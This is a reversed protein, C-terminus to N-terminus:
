PTRRRRTRELPLRLGGGQPSRRRRNPRRGWSLPLVGWRTCWFNDNSIMGNFGKILVTLPVQAEMRIAPPTGVGNAFMPTPDDYGVRQQVQGTQRGSWISGFVEDLGNPVGTPLLSSRQKLAEQHEDM